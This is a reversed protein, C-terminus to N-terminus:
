KRATKRALIISHSVSNEGSINESVTNFEDIFDNNGLLEFAAQVFNEMAPLAKWNRKGSLSYITDMVDRVPQEVKYYDLHHRLVINVIDFKKSVFEEFNQPTFFPEKKMYSSILLYGGDNLKEYINDLSENVGSGTYYIVEMASIFDFKKEELNELKPLSSNIFGAAPFKIKCKEVAVTSIDVGTIAANSFYGALKTTFDGLCCGIDLLSKVEDQKVYRKVLELAKIYRIQQSARWDQGWPDTKASNFLNDNWEKTGYQLGKQDPMIITYDKYSKSQVDATNNNIVSESKIRKDNDNKEKESVLFSPLEGNGLKNYQSQLYNVEEHRVNGDRKAPDAKVGPKGNFPRYYGMRGSKIERFKFYQAFALYMWAQGWRLYPAFVKKDENWSYGFWGENTQLHNIIWKLNKTIQEELEPHEPALMSMLIISEAAGHINVNPNQYSVPFHTPRGDYNIFEKKYFNLYKQYATKYEEKGLYHYLNFLCRIEFGTHYHDNYTGWEKQIHGWYFINGAPTQESLAYQASREAMRIFLEKETEKGTRALFEAAFLNANHVHFNDIPTYSFCIGGPGTDDRNLDELIFNCISVCADLYKIDRTVSYLEWLGDGAATTAIVSPTNAPIFIKSQWDFPYGWCLNKYDKNNNELLWSASKEAENLYKEDNTAKYLTVNASTLLGVAKPNIRKPIGLEERLVVPESDNRALLQQKVNEQLPKGAKEQQIFYDQIDYPDYGAYGNGTIWDELKNFSEAFGNNEFNVASTTDEETRNKSGSKNFNGIIKKYFNIVKDIESEYTYVQKSFDVTRKIEELVPLKSILEDVSKFTVGTPNEKFYNVYSTIEATAVPLGAAMYEFLKNAITSSLFRINGKQLNWPIIGYDFRTMEELLRHPPLPHNYTINKYPEFYKDVDPFYVDPYIHVCYGKEALEIFQDGFDRHRGNNVYIGGEYVFHVKGDISSLKEHFKKPLHEESAYNYYVLSDGKVGYLEKAEDRQYPTSYIRGHAGRNALGEFYKLNETQDRLSILDHTDHIVPVDGGLAAVTYLDPENHSHILDFGKSIDWLKKYSEIKINDNYTNDDLNKYRESLKRETYALTVNHGKKRLATAYKYNRICPSNQLFLINLGDKNKESSFNVRNTNKSNLENFISLMESDDPHNTCYDEAVLLAQDDLDAKVLASILNYALDRDDNNLKYAKLFNEASKVYDKKRSYIIGLFNRVDFDEDVINLALNFFNIAEDDRGESANQLGLLKLTSFQDM